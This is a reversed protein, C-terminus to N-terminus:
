YTRRLMLKKIFLRSVPHDNALHSNAIEDIDSPQVNGYWTTDTHVLITCGDNCAGLCGSEQIEADLGNKEVSEKLLQFLINGGRPNCSPKPVVPPRENTCVYVLHKM